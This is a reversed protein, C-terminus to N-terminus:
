LLAGSLVFATLNGFIAAALAASLGAEVAYAGTPACQLAGLPPMLALLVFAASIGAGVEHAFEAANRPAAVRHAHNVSESMRRMTGSRSSSGARTVSGRGISVVVM